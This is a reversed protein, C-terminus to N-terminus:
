RIIALKQVVQEEGGLRLGILYIGNPINQVSLTAETTGNELQQELMTKGSLDM